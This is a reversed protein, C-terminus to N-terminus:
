IDPVVLDTSVDCFEYESLLSLQLIGPSLRPSMIALISKFVPDEM